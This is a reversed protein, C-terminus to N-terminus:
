RVLRWHPLQIVTGDESTHSTWEATVAAGIVVHTTPAGLLNGIVRLQPAEDLSVLVVVYPVSTELARSAAYHVVTHSHITGRPALVRTDFSMSGCARCIEEPPHQLRECTVCRQVALTGSTFWERNFPTLAPLTFDDPLPRTM